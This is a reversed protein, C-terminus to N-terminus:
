HEASGDTRGKGLRRAILDGEGCAGDQTQRKGGAGRYPFDPLLDVRGNDLGYIDVVPEHNRHIGPSSASNNSQVRDRFALAKEENRSAVERGHLIGFDLKVFQDQWAAFDQV